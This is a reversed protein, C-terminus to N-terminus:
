MSKKGQDDKAPSPWVQYPNSPPFMIFREMMCTVPAVTLLNRTIRKVWLPYFHTCLARSQSMLLPQLKQNQHFYPACQCHMSIVIVLYYTMHTPFTMSSLSTLNKSMKCTKHLSSSKSGITKHSSKPPLKPYILHPSQHPFMLAQQSKAMVPHHTTPM